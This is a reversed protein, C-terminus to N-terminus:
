QTCASTLLHQWGLARISAVSIRLVGTQERQQLSQASPNIKKKSSSAAQPTNQGRAQQKAKQAPQPTPQGRAQQKEKKERRKDKITKGPKKSAVKRPSKDAM